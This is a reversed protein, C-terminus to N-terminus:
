KHLLPARVWRYIAPLLAQKCFTTALGSEAYVTKKESLKNLPSAANYSMEGPKGLAERDDPCSGAAESYVEKKLM